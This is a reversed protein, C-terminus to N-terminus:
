MDPSVCLDSMHMYEGSRSKSARSHIRAANEIFCKLGQSDWLLHRRKTDSDWFYMQNDARNEVVQRRFERKCVLVCVQRTTWHTWLTERSSKFTCRSMWCEGAINKRRLWDQPSLFYLHKCAYKLSLPFDSKQQRALMSLSGLFGSLKDRLSFYKVGALDSLHSETPNLLLHILVVLYCEYMVLNGCM